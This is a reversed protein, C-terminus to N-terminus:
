VMYLSTASFVSLLDNVLVGPEVEYRLVKFLPVTILTKGWSHIVYFEMFSSCHRKGNEFIQM